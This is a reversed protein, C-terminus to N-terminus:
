CGLRLVRLEAITETWFMAMDSYEDKEKPLIGITICPIRIVMLQHQIMKLLPAKGSLAVYFFRGPM